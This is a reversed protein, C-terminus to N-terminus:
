TLKSLTNDGIQSLFFVSAVKLPLVFCLYKLELIVLFHHVLMM